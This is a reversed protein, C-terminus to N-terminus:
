ARARRSFFFLAGALMLLAPASSGRTDALRCGCGGPKEKVEGAPKEDEPPTEAASAPTEDTKEEGGGEKKEASKEGGSEGGGEKKDGKEKKKDAFVMARRDIIENEGELKLTVPTGVVQGNRTDRVTVKYEGAEFGNARTINFSMMTGKEIKGTGPDMFGVDASEIIDQRGDLPVRREVPADKGDVMAREYYALPTFEFKMPVHAVDPAKPMFIKFEVKWSKNQTEKITTKSWKIQGAAHALGAILLVALAMWLAQAWSKRRSM